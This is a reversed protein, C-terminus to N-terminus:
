KNPDYTHRSKRTALESLQLGVRIRFRAPHVLGYESTIEYLGTIVFYLKPHILMRRGAGLLFKSEYDTSSTERYGNQLVREFESTAFLSRKLDYLMFCRYGPSTLSLFDKDEPPQTLVCSVGFGAQFTTTIKYGVQINLNARIPEFGALNLNFSPVLRETLTRGKMSTQRVANSMDASNAFERYKRMLKSVSKQANLIVHSDIERLSVVSKHCVQPVKSAFDQPLNGRPIDSTVLASIDGPSPLSTEPKSLSSVMSTFKQERETEIQEAYQRLYEKAQRSSDIQFYKLYRTLRKEGSLHQLKEIHKASLHVAPQACVVAPFLFLFIVKMVEFKFESL